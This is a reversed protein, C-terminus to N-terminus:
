SYWAKADSIDIEIQISLLAWDRKDRCLAICDPHSIIKNSSSDIESHHCSLNNPDLYGQGM